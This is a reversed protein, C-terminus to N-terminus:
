WMYFEFDFENFLLNELFEYKEDVRLNPYTRSMPFYTNFRFSHFEDGNKFEIVYLSFPAHMIFSSIKQSEYNELGLSNITQIFNEFGSKPTIRRLHNIRKIRRGFLGDKHLTGLEILTAQYEYGGIGIPCFLISDRSVTIIRDISTGNNIWARFVWEQDSHQIPFITESLYGLNRFPMVSEKYTSCSCLLLFVILFFINKNRM